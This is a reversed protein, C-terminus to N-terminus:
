ATSQYQTSHANPMRQGHTWRLLTRVAYSTMLNLNQGLILKDAEGKLGPFLNGGVM